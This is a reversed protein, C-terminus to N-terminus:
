AHEGEKRSFIPGPCLMLSSTLFGLNQVGQKGRLSANSQDGKVKPRQKEQLLSGRWQKHLRVNGYPPCHQTVAM